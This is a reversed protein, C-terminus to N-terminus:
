SASIENRLSFCAGCVSGVFFQTGSTLAAGSEIDATGACGFATEGGERRVLVVGPAGCARAAEALADLGGTDPKM